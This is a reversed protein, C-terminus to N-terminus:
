KGRDRRTRGFRADAWDGIVEQMMKRLEENRSSFEQKFVTEMLKRLDEHRKPATDTLMDKVAERLEGRLEAVTLSASKGAKGNNNQHRLGTLFSPLFKMVTAVLLVAVAGGIGVQEALDSM